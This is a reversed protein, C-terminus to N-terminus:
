DENSKEEVPYSIQKIEKNIFEQLISNADKSFSDFAEAFAHLFFDEKYNFERALGDNIVAFKNLKFHVIVPSKINFATKFYDQINAICRSRVDKNDRVIVALDIIHKAIEKKAKITKNEM